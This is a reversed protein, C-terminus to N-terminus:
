LNFIWLSRSITLTKLKGGWWGGCSMCLLKLGPEARIQIITLTSLSASWLPSSVQEEMTKSYISSFYIPFPIQSERQFDRNLIIDKVGPSGQHSLCYLIQRWHLLGLKLGQTEPLDEPSSVGMRTNKGPSNWPCILRTPLLRHPQLCDSM